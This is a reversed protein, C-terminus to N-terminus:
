DMIYEFHLGKITEFSGKCCGCIGGVSIGTERSAQSISDYIINTEVCKVRRQQLIRGDDTNEKRSLWRLNEVKNNYKNHDVHDVTDYNNPNPIFAEAVLRHVFVNKVKGHKNLTVKLYGRGNDHQSKIKGTDINRVEGETSVEYNYTIGDYIIQKWEKM